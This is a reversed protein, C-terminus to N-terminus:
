RVGGRVREPDVQVARKRSKEPLTATADFLRQAADEITELLFGITEHPISDGRGNAIRNRVIQLRRETDQGFVVAAPTSPDYSHIAGVFYGGSLDLWRPEQIM